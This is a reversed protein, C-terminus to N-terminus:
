LNSFYLPLAIILFLAHCFFMKKLIRDKKVGKHEFAFISGKPLGIIFILSAAIPFLVADKASFYFLLGLVPYIFKQRVYIIFATCFLIFVLSVLFKEGGLFIAILLVLVMFLIKIMWMFYKKGPKMEEPSIFSLIAGIWLGSFAAISVLLYNLFDM